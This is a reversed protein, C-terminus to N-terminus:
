WAEDDVDDVTRDHKARLKADAATEELKGKVKQFGGKLGKGRQQNLDGKIQNM